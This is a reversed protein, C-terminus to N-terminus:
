KKTEDKKKQKKGSPKFTGRKWDLRGDMDALKMNTLLLVKKKGWKKIIEGITENDEGGKVDRMPRCANPKGDNRGCAVKKKEKVYPTIQIWEEELWTETRKAKPKKKTPKSYTGGLSKYARVVFMSKYASHRKYSEDAIKLAQKYLDVDIVNEPIIAM